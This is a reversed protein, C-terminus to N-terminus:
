NMHKRIDLRDPVKSAYKKKWFFLSLINFRDFNLRPVFFELPICDLIIPGSLSGLTTYLTLLITPLDKLLLFFCCKLPKLGVMQLRTGVYWLLTKMHKYVPDLDM